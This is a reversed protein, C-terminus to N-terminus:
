MRCDQLHMSFTESTNNKYQLTRWRIIYELWGEGTQQKDKVTSQNRQLDKRM